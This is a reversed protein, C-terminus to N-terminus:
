ELVYDIIAPADYRAMDEQYFDWYEKSHIDLSVHAHSFISGRNNGLWVDYGQEALVFAPAVAPDNAVYENMDCDQAHMFLAVPKKMDSSETLKGPIRGLTLVYGDETLVSTSEFKYGNEHCVYNIPKFANPGGLDPIINPINPLHHPLGQSDDAAAL